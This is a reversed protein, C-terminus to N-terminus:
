NKPAKVSSKSLCFFSPSTCTLYNSQMQSDATPSVRYHFARHKPTTSSSLVNLHDIFISIKGGHMIFERKGGLVDPTSLTDVVPKNGGCLSDRTVESGDDDYCLTISFKVTPNSVGQVLDQETVLRRADARHFLGFELLQHTRAEVCPVLAASSRRKFIELTHPWRNRSLEFRTATTIASTDPLHLQRLTFEFDGPDLHVDAPRTGLNVACATDTDVVHENTASLAVPFDVHNRRLLFLAHSYRQELLAYRARVSTLNARELRLQRRLSETSHTPEHGGRNFQVDEIEDDDDDDEDEDFNRKKRRSPM